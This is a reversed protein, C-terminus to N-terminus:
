RLNERELNKILPSFDGRPGKPVALRTESGRRLSGAAEEPKSKPGRVRTPARLHCHKGSRPGSLEELAGRLGVLLELPQGELGGSLSKHVWSGENIGMGAELMAGTVDNKM